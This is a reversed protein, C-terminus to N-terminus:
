LFSWSLIILMALSILAAVIVVFNFRQMRRHYAQIRDGEM